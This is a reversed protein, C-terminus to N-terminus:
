WTKKKKIKYNKQCAITVAIIYTVASHSRDHPEPRGTHTYTPPNNYKSTGPIFTHETWVEGFVIFQFYLFFTHTINPLYLFVEDSYFNWETHVHPMMCVNSTGRTYWWLVRQLARSSSSPSILFFFSKFKWCFLM